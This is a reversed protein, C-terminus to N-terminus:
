ECSYLLSIGHNEAIREVERILSNQNLYNFFQPTFKNMLEM